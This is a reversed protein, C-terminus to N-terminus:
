SAVRLSAVGPSASHQAFQTHGTIKAVSDSTLGLIKRGLPHQMVLLAAADVKLAQYNYFWASAAAFCLYPSLMAAWGIIREGEQASNVIVAFVLGAWSFPSVGFQLIVFNIWPRMSTLYPTRRLIIPYADVIGLFRNGRGAIKAGWVLFVLFRLLAMVSISLVIYGFDFEQSRSEVSRGLFDSVLFGAFLADAVFLLSLLIECPWRVIRVIKSVEKASTGAAMLRKVSEKVVTHGSRLGKHIRELVTLDADSRLEFGLSQWRDKPIKDKVNLYCVLAPFTLRFSASSLEDSAQKGAGQLAAAIDDRIRLSLRVFGRGVQEGHPWSTDEASFHTGISQPIDQDRLTLLESEITENKLMTAIAFSIAVRDSATRWYRYCEVLLKAAEATDIERVVKIVRGVPQRGKWQQICAGIHPLAINGFLIISETVDKELEPSQDALCEVILPLAKTVRARALV